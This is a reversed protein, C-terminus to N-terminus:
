LFVSLCVYLRVASLIRDSSSLQAILEPFSFINMGNFKDNKSVYGYSILCTRKDFKKYYNLHKDADNNKNVLM